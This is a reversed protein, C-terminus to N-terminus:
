KKRLGKFAKASMERRDERNLHTYVKELTKESMHIQKKIFVSSYGLRGLQSAVTHRFTHFTKQVGAEDRLRYFQKSNRAMPRSPDGRRPFVYSSVSNKRRRVLRRVVSKELAIRWETRQKVSKPPIVLEGNSFDIYDWKLTRISGQRIGHLALDFILKWKENACRYLREIEAPEYPTPVKTQKHEKPIPLLQFDPRPPPLPPIWRNEERAAVGLIFRMIKRDRDLKREPYLRTQLAVYDDWRATVQSVPVDRWFGRLRKQWTYVFEEATRVSRVRKLEAARLAVYECSVYKTVPKGAAESLVEDRVKRAEAASRFAKRKLSLTLQKGSVSKRTYYRGSTPHRFVGEVLEGCIPEPNLKPPSM